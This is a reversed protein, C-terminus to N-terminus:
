YSGEELVVITASDKSRKTRGDKGSRKACVRLREIHESDNISCAGIGQEEMDGCVKEMVDFFGDITGMYYKEGYARRGSDGWQMRAMDVVLDLNQSGLRPFGWVAHLGDEKLGTVLSPGSSKVATVSLLKPGKLKFELIQRPKLDILVPEENTIQISLNQEQPCLEFFLQFLAIEQYCADHDHAEHYIV